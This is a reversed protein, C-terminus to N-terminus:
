ITSFYLFSAARCFSEKWAEKGQGVGELVAHLLHMVLSKQSSFVLLVLHTPSCESICLLLLLALAALTETFLLQFM